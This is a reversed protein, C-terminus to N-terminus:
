RCAAQEYAGAAGTGDNLRANGQVDISTAALGSAVRNKATTNAIFANAPCYNGMGLANAFGLNPSSAGVMGWSRDDAFSILSGDTFVAATDASSLSLQGINMPGYTGTLGVGIPSQIVNGRWNVQGAGEWNGIRAGSGPANATDIDNKLAWQSSVINQVFYLDKLANSAVIGGTGIYPLTVGTAGLATLTVQQCASVEVADGPSALGSPSGFTKTGAAATFNFGSTATSAGAGTAGTIYAVYDPNCPINVTITQGTGTPTVANQYPSSPNEDISTIVTPNNISAYGVWVYYAQNAFTSTGSAVGILTPIGETYPGSFREGIVDVGRVVINSMQSNDNDAGIRVGIAGLSMEFIDDEMDLNKLGYEFNSQDVIEFMIKNNRLILQLPFALTTTGVQPESLVGPSCGRSINGVSTFPAWSSSGSATASACSVTDALVVGAARNTGPNYYLLQTQKSMDLWSNYYDDRGFGYVTYASGASTPYFWDGEFAIYGVPFATNSASDPGFVVEGASATIGVNTIHTNTGVNYNSSNSIVVGGSTGALAALGNIPYAGAGTPGPCTGGSPAATILVGPKSGGSTTSAAINGGFGAYPTASPLYCFVIGNIDYHAATTNAGAGNRNTSNNYTKVATIASFPSAFYAASGPDSAGSQVAPAGGATGSIWVYAWQYSGSPDYFADLNHPNPSVQQGNSNFWAVNGPDCIGYGGTGSNYRYFWDCNTNYGIELVDGNSATASATTAFTLTGGSCGTVLGINTATTEDFVNQPRNATAVIGACSAGGAPNTISGTAGGSTIGGSLMNVGDFNPSQSDFIQDGEIPFGKYQFRIPTGAVASTLTAFDGTTFTIKYVPTPTGATVTVTGTAGQYNHNFQFTDATATGSTQNTSIFASASVGATAPTGAVPTGTIAAASLTPATILTNYKVTYAGTAACGGGPCASVYMNTGGLQGSWTIFTGVSFQGTITGSMTLTATGGSVSSLTASTDTPKIITAPTTLYGGGGPESITQGAFAGDAISEGDGLVGSSPCSLSGITTPTCTAKVGLTVTTSTVSLVKPEGPFGPATIRMGPIFGNTNGCSTLVNSGNTATCSTSFQRSSLSLSSVTHTVSHTGDTMTASVAAVSQGNM